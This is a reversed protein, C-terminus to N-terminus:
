HREGGPIELIHPSPHKWCHVLIGNLPSHCNLAVEVLLARDIVDVERCHGPNKEGVVCLDMNKVTTSVGRWHGGFRQVIALYNETCYQSHNSQM